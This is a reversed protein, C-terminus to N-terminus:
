YLDTVSDRWERTPPEYLAEYCEIMSDSISDMADFLNRGRNIANGRLILYASITGVEMEEDPKDPRDILIKGNIFRIMRSPERDETDVDITFKIRPM